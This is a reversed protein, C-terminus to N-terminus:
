RLAILLDRSSIGLPEVNEVPFLPDRSLLEQREIDNEVSQFQLIMEIASLPIEKELERM